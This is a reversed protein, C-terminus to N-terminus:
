ATILLVAFMSIWVADLFHWYMAMHKVPRYHEHDYKHLHANRTVIVLPIFGGIVHLAHVLILFFVAGYLPNVVTEATAQGTRALEYQEMATFHEFLLSTLSPAQILLFLIALGLTMLMSRCFADIRQFRIHTLARHITYSSLLIALTSFWLGMPIHLSGWSPGSPLPEGTIENQKEIMGSIRIITYALMSAAFLMGLSILFLWMGFDGAKKPVHPTTAVTTM